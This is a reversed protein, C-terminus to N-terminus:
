RRDTDSGPRTDAANANGTAADHAGHTAHDHPDLPAGLPVVASALMDADFAFSIEATEGTAVTVNQTQTGLRSHWAEVVYDGPPLDSLDFSGDEGTAIFYPHAVVGVYAAMWGHADCEVPIMIEPQSLTRSMEAVAGPQGFNFPRNTSPQANVNHFVGDSNLFTLSQDVQVGTVHPIYRCGNQDIVSAEQPTPFDMGELGEKVYIFVDALAGDRVKVFERTPTGEHKDACAQESSMDITEPAPAIGSFSVSGSVHGATAVDFPMERSESAEEGPADGGEDGGGCAAVGFALLAMPVARRLLLGSVNPRIKM